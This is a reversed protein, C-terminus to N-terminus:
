EIINNEPKPEVMSRFLMKLCNSFCKCPVPYGTLCSRTKEPVKKFHSTWHLRSCYRVSSLDSTIPYWFVRGHKVPWGIYYIVLITKFPIKPSTMDITSGLVSYYIIQLLYMALFLVKQDCNQQAWACIIVFRQM